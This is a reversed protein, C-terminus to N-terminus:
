VGKLVDEFIDLATNAEQETLTLPPCFRITSTGCALLLMGKHFCDDIIKDRTKGDLQDEKGIEVGLMLGIGRVDHILDYKTQMIKFRELMLTGIKGANEMLGDEILDLTKAAAAMAVPNGGFTSGHVALPWDMIKENAVFAALPLGSAIGKAVCVIDPKVDFHEIAGFKGTRGIGSQIEDAILLIGHEDCIKRIEQVFEKPPVIYGGEGQIPEMVIAAVEDPSVMKGFLYDKLFAICSETTHPVSKNTTKENPFFSHYFGPALPGFKARQRTKSANASIAATTRGHFAGYFAVINPRGTKYRALKIAGEWAEAGSNAFFVKNNRNGKIQIKNTLREAYDAMVDFYFDMSCIHLFREAQDKIAQVVEPHSHGTATVAIGAMMDLFRNGDVDWVWAGKGHDIVLPYERYCSPSLSLKDKAIIAQGKPGPLATKIEPHTYTM